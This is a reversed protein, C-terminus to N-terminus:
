LKLKSRNRKKTYKYKLESISPKSSKIITEVKSSVEEQLMKSERLEKLLKNQKKKINSIESKQSQFMENFKSIDIEQVDNNKKDFIEKKMSYILTPILTSAVLMQYVNLVAYYKNIYTTGYNSIDVVSLVFLAIIVGFSFILIHLSLFYSRNTIDFFLRKNSNLRLNDIYYIIVLSVSTLSLGSLFITLTIKWFVDNDGIFTLVERYSEYGLIYQLVIISFYSLISLIGIGIDAIEFKRDKPIKVITIIPFFLSFSIYILVSFSSIRDITEESLSENRAFVLLFVIIAIYLFAGLFFMFKGKAIGKLNNRSAILSPVVFNGVMSLALTSTIFTAM